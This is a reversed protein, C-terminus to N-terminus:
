SFATATVRGGRRFPRRRVKPLQRWAILFVESTVDEASDRDAHQLAYSL